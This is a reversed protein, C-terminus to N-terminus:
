ALNVLRNEENTEDHLPVPPMVELLVVMTVEVEIVMSDPVLSRPQAAVAVADMVVNSPEPKVRAKSSPAPIAAVPTPAEPSQAIVHEDGVPLGVPAGDAAGTMVGVAAAGTEGDASGGRPVGQKEASADTITWSRPSTGM